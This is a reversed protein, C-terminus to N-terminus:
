RVVITGGGSYSHYEGNYMADAGVPGMKFTGKSVVRVVYYYDQSNNNYRKRIDDFMNIRDDRVDLYDPSTQNKIWETGPIEDTRPNEIEFCAPLIDTIAVNEITKDYTSTVSLKVVVLDNVKFKNGYIINGYRDYFTKRVALYNDVEKYKGTKSIGEVEWFYYLNGAGKVDLSVKADVIDKTSLKLVGKSYNTIKKGGSSVTAAITSENIKKSIKGLALLSFIREQTNMYRNEKLNKSIHMAMVPVQDNQPDIELLANLAIAEDRLPSYFSGGFQKQPNENKFAVPLLEKAKSKDGSLAFAASLLYKADESLLEPKSKYYNMLSADSKGALALVYLSYAVSRPAIYRSQGSGYYYNKTEKSKLRNKLYSLSNDIFSQDISYGAKKAEIAFHAAYASIWWSYNSSGNWMGIGGNYAQRMKLKTIAANINNRIDNAQSIDNYMTKSIDAFYLQPFAASITQESCGYPYRVLYDLDKAFEIMPNNGIILKYDVSKKIFDENTLDIVKKTGAVITGSGTEKLLSTAPRITIDTVEVFDEGLANSSITIKGNGIENEVYVTFSVQQEGKSDISSSIKSSSVVKLPGTVNINTKANTSKKTTNTLTTTIIATDGPSFFRPISSSLILPDAVIIDAEANGFSSGKHAVAMVRLSGSFQPIDVEFSTEGSGNTEVIGSWFSVLKVRDNQMPNVRKSLDFGEDGAGANDASIEKFLFPYLNYSNVLLARNQYFFAYPNPTRFGSVQLIGEDVVAITVKSNPAAKVNIKQKTRSRSEEPASISVAMNRKSKEVRMSKIGYAVTLPFDSVEHKKFLTATIYANPLFAESTLFSFEAARNQTNLYFHQIVNDKEVTVLMKGDFPTKFLVTANEGVEYKEKDFEMDIKGENNVEFSNNSTNGWSYAYFSNSVYANPADVSSVRVEYRGSLTPNYVITEKGDISMEKEYVVKEYPQSNYTYYSGSKNLITRYEHKIIIIKTKAGNILKEAKDVAVIPINLQTNTGVYYDFYGIGYYAEQTSVSLVDKRNVPRNTEDFVTSYLVADIKGMDAYAKSIDFAEEVDGKADTKGTRLVKSFDNNRTNQYFNYNPFDKPRFYKRRFSLEVEYSRNAAPTGFLNQANIKLNLKEDISYEKEEISTSVRIRDPMFEEVKIVKSALFVDNSTHVNIVYNGTIDGASTKFDADFSGENNLTKKMSKLLKGNPTRVEIKIPIEGPSLWDNNRIVGAFHVEEAPRYLDREPYIFAQLGNSASRYGGIEFSSTSIRTDKLMMVNYDNGKSVTILEPKFGAVKKNIFEIKAYGDSDSQGEGALQNNKGYIKIVANQVSEATSIANVFVSMYDKGDKAIIGLDSVSIFRSDSLWRDDDSRIDIHYIGKYDKLKDEFNIKLLRSSGAKVMDAAEYTHEYVVDQIIQNSSNYYYYDDYYYDDYYSDYYSESTNFWTNQSRSTILNNEYVKSIIVKVKEVNIIKAEINKFGKSSLYFARDKEFQIQPKLKGFTIEKNYDSKLKGGVKGQLGKKLTLTYKEQASFKEGSITFGSETTAVSYSINPVIKIFKKLDKAKIQQSMKVKLEGKSGDHKIEVDNVSLHFPSNLLAHRVIAEERGLTGNVPKINKSLKIDFVLDDDSKEIGKLAYNMEDNVSTSLLEANVKEGNLSIEIENKLVSPDIKQNFNITLKVLDNGQENKTWLVNTTSVNLLATQFSLDQSKFKKGETFKLIEDTINVQYKTAPLMRELPSFILERASQWKYEGKIEPSFKIYNEKGSQWINIISDPVLDEDFVFSFNQNTMLNESLNSYNLLVETTDNKCSSVFFLITLAFLIKKM